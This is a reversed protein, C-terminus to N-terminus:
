KKRKIIGSYAIEGTLPACDYTVWWFGSQGRPLNGKCIARIKKRAEKKNKYPGYHGSTSGNNAYFYARYEM